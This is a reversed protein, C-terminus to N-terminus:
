KCNFFLSLATERQLHECAVRPQHSKKQAAHSQSRERRASSATPHRQHILLASGLQLVKQAGEADRGVKLDKLNHFWFHLVDPLCRICTCLQGRHGKDRGSCAGLRFAGRQPNLETHSKKGTTMMPTGSHVSSLGKLVTKGALVYNLLM